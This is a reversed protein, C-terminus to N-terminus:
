KDERAAPTAFWQDKPVVKPMEPDGEYAPTMIQVGHENFQDLINRHLDAYIRQMENARRACANIQYTIAFDGLKLLLVSPAPEQELGPTLRAAELLMAEVQRWPTEYGIGVETHLILAGIEAPKSYNMVASSLIASNPITIEENKITRLHTVQLRVETIDGQVDGIQVRDGVRFARRYTIMYGAMVNAVASTSGLSLVVGALISLGKFALSSSGPVLPYAIVIAFAVALARVLNYTPQAWEPEFRRLRITGRELADFYLRAFALGYRTVFFLIGLLVLNPIAAIFREGLAALPTAVSQFLQLGAGRTWPFQTLVYQLLFLVVLLLAVLRVLGVAGSLTAWLRGINTIQRSEAALAGTRRDFARHLAAEARGLLWVLMALFAAAIAVATLSRAASATLHARSRAERYEVIARRIRETYVPAVLSRQVGEIRSDEDTVYMVVSTGGLITTLDGREDARLDEVRFAHDAGLSSIRAAIDRARQAAPRAAIGRVHFLLEGDIEVPASDFTAERAPEQAIATRAVSLWALLTVIRLVSANM